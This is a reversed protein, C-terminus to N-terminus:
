AQELTGLNDKVHKLLEQDLADEQHHIKGTDWEIFSKALAGDKARLLGFAIDVLGPQRTSSYLVSAGCKSCFDRHAHDSSQFRTISPHASGDYAMGDGWVVKAYPIDM